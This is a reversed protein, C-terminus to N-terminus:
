LLVAECFSIGGFRPDEKGSFQCLSSAQVSLNESHLSKIKVVHLDILSCCM